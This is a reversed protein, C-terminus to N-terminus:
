FDPDSNSNSISADLSISQVDRLLDYMRSSLKGKQVAIPCIDRIIDIGQSVPVGLKQLDLLKTLAEFKQRKLDKNPYPWFSRIERDLKTQYKTIESFVSNNADELCQVNLSETIRFPSCLVDLDSSLKEIKKLMECDAKVTSSNYITDRVLNFYGCLLSHLPQTPIYQLNDCIGLIGKIYISQKESHCTKRLAAIADLLAQKQRLIEWITNVLSYIRDVTLRKVTQQPNTFQVMLINQPDGSEFYEKLTFFLDEDASCRQFINVIDSCVTDDTLYTDMPSTIDDLYEKYDAVWSSYDRTRGKRGIVPMSLIELTFDDELLEGVTEKLKTQKLISQLVQLDVSVPQSAISSEFFQSQLRRGPPVGRLNLQVKEM